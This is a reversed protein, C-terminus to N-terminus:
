FLKPVPYFHIITLVNPWLNKKATVLLEGAFLPCDCKAELFFLKDKGGGLRCRKAAPILSKKDRWYSESADQQDEPSKDPSLALAYFLQAFLLYQIDEFKTM